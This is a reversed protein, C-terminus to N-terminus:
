TALKSRLKSQLGNIMRGIESILNKMEQFKQESLFGVRVAIILQTQLEGLSGKAISLFQLFEKTSNRECGESINSAVSVASRKLQDTLGYLEERPFTKVLQYINATLDISKQWVKLDEYSNVTM